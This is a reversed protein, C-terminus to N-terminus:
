RDANTLMDAYKNKGKGAYAEIAAMHWISSWNCGVTPQLWTGGTLTTETLTTESIQIMLGTGM